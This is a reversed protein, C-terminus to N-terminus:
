SRGERQAARDRAVESWNVVILAGLTAWKVHRQFRGVCRERTIMGASMEAYQTSAEAPQAVVITALGPLKRAREIDSIWRRVHLRGNSLRQRRFGDGARDTYNKRQDWDAMHPEIAGSVLLQEPTGRYSVCIWDDRCAEYAVSVDGFPAALTSVIEEIM